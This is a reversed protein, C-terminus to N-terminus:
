KLWVSEHAKPSPWRDHRHGQRGGSAVGHSATLNIKEKTQVLWGSATLMADIQQRAKEEPNM